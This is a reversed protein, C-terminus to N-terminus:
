DYPICTYARSSSLNMVACDNRLHIVTDVLSNRYKRTTYTYQTYMCIRSIANLASGAAGSWLIWRVSWGPRRNPDICYLDKLLVLTSFLKYNKDGYLYTSTCRVRSRVMDFCKTERVRRHQHKSFPM